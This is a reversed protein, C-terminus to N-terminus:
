IYDVKDIDPLEENESAGVQETDQNNRSKKIEFTALSIDLFDYNHNKEYSKILSSKGSGYSGTVAINHINEDRLAFNM